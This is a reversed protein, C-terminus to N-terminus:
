RLAVVLRLLHLLYDILARSVRQTRERPVYFLLYLTRVYTTYLWCPCSGNKQELTQQSDIFRTCKLLSLINNFYKRKTKKMLCSAIADTALSSYSEFLTAPLLPLSESSSSGSLIIFHMQLMHKSLALSATTLMHPWKNQDTVNM